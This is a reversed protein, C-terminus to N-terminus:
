TKPRSAPQITNDNTPHQWLDLATQNRQFRVEQIQNQSLLIAYESDDLPLEHMTAKLANIALIVLFGRLNTFILTKRM